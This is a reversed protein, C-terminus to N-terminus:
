AAAELSAGACGVHVTGITRRLPRHHLNPLERECRPGDEAAARSEIATVLTVVIWV